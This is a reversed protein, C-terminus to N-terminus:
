DTSAPLRAGLFRSLTEGGMLKTIVGFWGNESNTMVVYGSKREVSAAVFCNFGPNNGGHRLFDGNETHNIEWGIAWSSKPNRKVHPRLMGERSKQNLRFADSPKPDIIEIVFKAYDTPTTFLGGAMGYRALSPGSPKRKDEFPLGNEGHGRAVHSEISENWLYGSSTMGFPVLLNARMFADISPEMACVEVDEEFHGCDKPNVQGGALQTVVAQLYSIGEGSYGWSEGPTFRISMPEEKSRWNPFGARHTLVHRATILDLRPDGQVPRLSTYKTLPTDLNMIGKECLKMVAYAFVPKSTSAAEYVTENDVPEKSAANKVGFGRRWLVKADNIIAISLGPVKAEQMLKPIQTELDTALPKWPTGDRLKEPQQNERACAFAPLVSLSLAARSSAVLFERRRMRDSM